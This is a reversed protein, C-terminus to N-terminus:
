RMEEAYGEAKLIERIVDAFEFRTRLSMSDQSNPYNDYNPRKSILHNSYIKDKPLFADSFELYRIKHDCNVDFRKFFLDLEKRLTYVGLIKFGQEFDHMHLEGLNYRDFIKFADYM